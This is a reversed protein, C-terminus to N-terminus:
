LLARKGVLIQEGNGDTSDVNEDPGEGTDPEVPTQVSQSPVGSSSTDCGNIGM